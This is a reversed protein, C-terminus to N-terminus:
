ASLLFKACSPPRIYLRPDGYVFAGSSILTKEKVYVCFMEEVLQHLTIITGMGLGFWAFLFINFVTIIRVNAVSV